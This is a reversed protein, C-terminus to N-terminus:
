HKTHIRFDKTAEIPFNSVFGMGLLSKIISM